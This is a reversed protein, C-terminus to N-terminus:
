VNPLKQMKVGLSASLDVGESEELETGVSVLVLIFLYLLQLLEEYVPM